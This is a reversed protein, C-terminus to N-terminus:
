RHSPPALGTLSSTLLLVGVLLIFEAIIARSLQNSRLAASRAVFALGLVCTFLSVKLMLRQGYVSEPLDVPSGAHNLTMMGGTVAIVMVCWGALRSFRLLSREPRSNVSILTGVGALWVSMAGAHLVHLFRVFDGHMAGHGLGALGWLTLGAAGLETLRSFRSLHVALLLCGGMLLILVAQGAPVRTLFDLTDTFNLMDLERLVGYTKGAAGAVLFGLGLAPWRLRPAGTLHRMVLGGVLLAAGLYLLLAPLM